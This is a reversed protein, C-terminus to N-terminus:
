MTAPKQTKTGPKINSHQKAKDILQEVKARDPYDPAVKLLNQWTELAGAADGKGQWKVMGLNFMTQAHKPDYQLATAFEKLARDADGMYYYATGMDTRVNPNRPDISLSRSYYDVADPFVQADYYVNGIQALLSADNPKSKLQAVLPEAQKEAMHRMQEPSPQQGTGPPMSTSQSAAASSPEPAASGRVLYGGAVGILLCIVALVYAQASTWTATSTNTSGTTNAM